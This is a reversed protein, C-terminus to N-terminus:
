AARRGAQVVSINRIPCDGSEGDSTRLVASPPTSVVELQRDARRNRRGGPSQGHAERRRKAEAEITALFEPSADEDIANAARLLDLASLEPYIEVFRWAEETTLARAGAENRNLQNRSLVREKGDRTIFFGLAVQVHDVSWGRAKRAAQLMPGLEPRAEEYNTL